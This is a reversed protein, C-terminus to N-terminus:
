GWRMKFHFADEDDEFYVTDTGLVVFRHTTNEFLWEIMKDVRDLDRSFVIIRDGNALIQQAAEDIAQLHVKKM